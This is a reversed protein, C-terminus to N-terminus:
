ATHAMTYHPFNPVRKRAWWLVCDDGAIHVVCGTSVVACVCLDSFFANKKKKKRAV